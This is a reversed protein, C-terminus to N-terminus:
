NAVEGFVDEYDKDDLAEQPLYQGSELIERMINVESEDFYQFFAELARDQIRQYQKGFTPKKRVLAKYFGKAPLAGTKEFVSHWIRIGEHDLDGFYEYKITHDREPEIGLQIPYVDVGSVIKWGSGYLCSNFHKNNGYTMVKYWVAKNEVILHIGDIDLTSNNCGRMLGFMVPDPTREIKLKKWIGIRELLSRGGEYEIWKENSVMRWSLEPLTLGEYSSVDDLFCSIQKLYPLDCAWQEKILSSYVNLNIAPNMKLKIQAHEIRERGESRNLLRKQIRWRHALKKGTRISFGSSIVPQLIGERELEEIVTMYNDYSWIAATRNRLEMEDINVTKWTSLIDILESLLKNNTM